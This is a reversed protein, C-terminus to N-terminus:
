CWHVLTQTRKLLFCPPQAEGRTLRKLRRVVPFIVKKLFFDVIIEHKATAADM